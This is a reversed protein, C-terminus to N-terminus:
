FTSLPIFHKNYVESVKLVESGKKEFHLYMFKYKSVYIHRCLQVLKLFWGRIMWMSQVNIQKRIGQSVLEEWFLEKLVFGYYMQPSDM